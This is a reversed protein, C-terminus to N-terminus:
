GPKRGLRGPAANQAANDYAGERDHDCATAGSLDNAAAEPVLRLLQESEGTNDGDQSNAGNDSERLQTALLGGAYRRDRSAPQQRRGCARVEAVEFERAGNVSKVVAILAWGLLAERYEPRAEAYRLWASRAFACASALLAISSSGFFASPYWM